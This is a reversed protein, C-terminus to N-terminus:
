KQQPITKYHELMDSGDKIDLDSDYEDILKQMLGYMFSTKKFAKSSPAIAIVVTDDPFYTEIIIFKRLWQKVRSEFKPQRKRYM